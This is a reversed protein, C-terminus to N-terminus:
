ILTCCTKNMQDSQKYFLKTKVSLDDSKQVMMDINEQRELLVKMNDVLVAKTEDVKITALSLADIKSADKYKNFTKEFSSSSFKQDAKCAKWKDAVDVELNQLAEELCKYAVRRPYDMDSFAYVAFM